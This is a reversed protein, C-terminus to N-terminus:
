NQQCAQLKSQGNLTPNFKIGLLLEVKGETERLKVGDMFVELNQNLTVLRESTGVTLLHTKEANLKFSNAQMWTSLSRCENTLKEGVTAISKSAAVLTSNDAFCDIEENIFTPLDNFFILFFLPGLNSGQPVGTSNLLFSSFVHDIWVAQYRDTLYSTVWNLM